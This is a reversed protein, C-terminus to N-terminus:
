AVKQDRRPNGNKTKRYGNNNDDDDEDYDFDMPEYEFDCGIIKKMPCLVRQYSLPKIIDM